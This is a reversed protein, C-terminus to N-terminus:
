VEIIAFEKKQPRWAVVDSLSKGSIVEAIYGRATFYEKTLQGFLDKEPTYTGMRMGRRSDAGSSFVFQILGDQRL